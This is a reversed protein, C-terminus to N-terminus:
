LHQCEGRTAFDELHQMTVDAYQQNGLRDYIVTDAGKVMLQIRGDPVRVVVSMRKRESTFELVNLVEYVEPQGFQLVSCTM